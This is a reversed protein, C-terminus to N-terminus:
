VNADGFATQSLSPGPELQHLSLKLQCFQTAGERAGDRLLKKIRTVHSFGLNGDKRDHIKRHRHSAGLYRFRFRSSHATALTSHPSLKWSLIWILRPSLAPSATM